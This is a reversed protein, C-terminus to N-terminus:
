IVRVRNLDDLFGPYSTDITQSELIETEGDAILGAVAFAMAIRHDLHAEVQAGKLKTPGHVALGDEFTEVHVGMERLNRAVLEIRDSEKVRLEAADRIESRGDLQSALVCLVPIEDILRPVLNGSITFPMGMELSEVFVDGVPEGMSVGRPEVTIQAGVQALVDLIGSRTPNLGVNTLRLRSEPVLLGAVMWFAASSIDGPVTLEFGNWSAGGEISVRNDNLHVSVGLARLLRETHDRSPAPEIVTTRGSARAGALLACSKVQASAVPMSYTIGELQGSGQITIPPFDGEFGAGMRRLPEAIRKMPRKQLSADGTLTARLDRSAIMGSLLRMTTGSNGCDLASEPQQWESPSVKVPGDPERVIEIGLQQLCRATSICDNGWLPDHIVSPSEAAAAFLLARHTISKDGPVRIEGQLAAAKSIRLSSM